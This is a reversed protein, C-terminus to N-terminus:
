QGKERIELGVDALAARAHKRRWSVCTAYYRSTETEEYVGDEILGQVGGVDDCAIDGL